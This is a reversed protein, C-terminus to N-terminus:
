RITLTANIGTPMNQPITIPFTEFESAYGPQLELIVHGSLGVSHIHSIAAVISIYDGPISKIGSVQGQIKQIPLLLICSFLLAVASLQNSKKM